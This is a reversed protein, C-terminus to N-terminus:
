AQSGEWRDITQRCWDKTDGPAFSNRSARRQLEVLDHYNLDAVGAVKVLEDTLTTNFFPPDDSSVTLNIGAHWFRGVPHDSMSSYEELIALNSTPCIDLPTQDEILRKVLDPDRESAVGHGIRDARLVDLAATVSSPPGMEGAHVELGLGMRRCAETLVAFESTPVTDEIGTLCLGVIPADASDVLNITALAEERGLDRIADVVIGIRVGDGGDALGTRLSEWMAHPDMGNRVYIMATFIVESWVINEEAQQGAFRFAVDYLDDPTRVLENTALFTDLFDPFDIYTGPYRGNVLRLAEVPDLGHRQALESATDERITGGLHVHLEVKPMARVQDVTYDVFSM